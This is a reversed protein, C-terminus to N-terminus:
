LHSPQLFLSFPLTRQTRGILASAAQLGSAQDPRPRSQVWLAPGHDSFVKPSHPIQQSRTICLLCWPLPYVSFTNSLTLLQASLLALYYCPQLFYKPLHGPIFPPPSSATPQFINKCHSPEFNEEPTQLEEESRLDSHSPDTHMSLIPVKRSTPGGLFRSESSCGPTKLSM